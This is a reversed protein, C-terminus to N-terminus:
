AKHIYIYIYVGQLKTRHLLRGLDVANGHSYIITAQATDHLFVIAPIYGSNKTKFYTVNPEFRGYDVKPPFFFVLRQFVMHLVSQVASLFCLLSLIALLLSTYYLLLSPENDVCTNDINTLISVLIIAYTIIVLNIIIFLILCSIHLIQKSKEQLSSSRNRFIHFLFKGAIILGPIIFCYTALKECSESETIGVALCFGFFCGIILLLESRFRSWCYLQEEDQFM